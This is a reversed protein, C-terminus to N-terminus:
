RLIFPMDSYVTPCLIHSPSIFKRTRYLQQTEWCASPGNLTQSLNQLFWDTSHITLLSRM